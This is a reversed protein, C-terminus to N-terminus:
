FRIPHYLVSLYSLVQDLQQNETAYFTGNLCGTSALQALAHKPSFRYARGGAENGDKAAPLLKGRISQFLSKSAM